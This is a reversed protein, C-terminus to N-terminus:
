GEGLCIADEWWWRGWCLPTWSVADSALLALPIRSFPTRRRLEKHTQLLGAISGDIKSVTYGLSAGFEFAKEAVRKSVEAM